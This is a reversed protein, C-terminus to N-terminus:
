KGDGWVASLREDITHPEHKPQKIHKQSAHQIAHWRNDQSVQDSDRTELRGNRWRGPVATLREHITYTEHTQSSLVLQTAHSRNSAHFRPLVTLSPRRRVSRWGIVSSERPGIQTGVKPVSASYSESASRVSRWRGVVFERASRNSHWGETASSESASPDGVERFPTDLVVCQVRIGVSRGGGALTDLKQPEPSTRTTPRRLHNPGTHIKHKASGRM